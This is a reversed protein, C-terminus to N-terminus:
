MLSIKRSNNNIRHNTNESIWKHRWWDVLENLIFVHIESVLFAIVFFLFVIRWKSVDYFNKASEPM